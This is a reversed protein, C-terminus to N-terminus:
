LGLTQLIFLFSKCVKTQKKQGADLGEPQFYPM